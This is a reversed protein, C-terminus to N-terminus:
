ALRPTRRAPIRRRWGIVGAFALKLGALPLLVSARLGRRPAAADEPAALVGAPPRVLPHPDEVHAVGFVPFAEEAWSLARAAPTGVWIELVGRSAALSAFADGARFPRDGVGDGDLDFAKGRGWWNGRGNESWRNEGAGLLNVVDTRNGAIANGAFLNGESSATLDIGVGNGVIANGRFECHLSADLFIGTLNGEIRNREAVVYEGSQLLIGYARYGVHRAFLNGRFAIRKSSMIAAGAANATFRNDEFVNDDSYMYHVGYRVRAVENGAIVNGNAGAFYIGDRTWRIENGMVRTGHSNFLHVGNGRRPEALATDGAIVNREVAASDAEQLYVGHLSEEIRNRLIRARRSHFLKIAADDTDLSRGSNRIVFGEIAVGDAGRVAVATGRRGGDIVAGEDGLLVLRPISIVLAGRYTGRAVRVTDGPRAAALAAAPTAFPAGPGVRLTRPPPAQLLAAFAAAALIM